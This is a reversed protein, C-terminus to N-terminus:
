AFPTQINRLRSTGGTEWRVDKRVAGQEQAPPHTSVSSFYQQRGSVRWSPSRTNPFLNAPCLAPFLEQIHGWVMGFFGTSLSLSNTPEKESMARVSCYRCPVNCGWWSVADQPVEMEWPVPSPVSPMLQQWMLRSQALLLRGGDAAPFPPVSVPLSSGNGMAMTTVCKTSGYSIGKGSPVTARPHSSYLAQMSGPHPTSHGLWVQPLLGM